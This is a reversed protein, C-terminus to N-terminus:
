GFVKMFPVMRGYKYVREMKKVTLGSVLTFLVTKWSYKIRFTDIKLNLSMKNRTPMIKLPFHPCRHKNLQKVNAIQLLHKVSFDRLLNDVRTNYLTIQLQYNKKRAMWGRLLAQIKIISKLLRIEEDVLKASQSLVATHRKELGLENHDFNSTKVCACNAQGM